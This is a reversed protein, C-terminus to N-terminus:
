VDLLSPDFWTDVYDGHILFRWGPPLSLFPLAEPCEQELHHAHMPAFFDDADSLTEGKWLYWGSNGATRPHRLGNIPGDLSTTSTAFGVNDDRATPCVPAGREACIKDQTLKDM